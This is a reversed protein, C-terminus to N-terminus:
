PQLFQSKAFESPSFRTLQKFARSFSKEDCYGVQGATYKVSNGATLLEAAKRMRYAAIFRAPTTHLHKQFFRIFYEPQLHAKEALHRVSIRDQYHAYIYELTLLLKGDHVMTLPSQGHYYLLLDELYRRRMVPAIPRDAAETTWYRLLRVTWRITTDDRISQLRLGDLAPYALNIHFYMCRLPDAPDHTITYRRNVPFLYFSGPPLPQGRDQLDEASASATYVAQGGDIVYLRHFLARKERVHWGPPCTVEGYALINLPLISREM